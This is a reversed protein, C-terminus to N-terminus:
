AAQEVKALRDNVFEAIRALADPPGLLKRMEAYGALQRARARGDGLLAVTQEVLAQPTFEHQLLEPVVKLGTVLNPLTLPGHVRTPLLMQAARYTVPGVAYFAVQPIGLLALELVATGSAAWALPTGRLEASDKQIITAQEPGRHRRWVTGIQAACRPTAAVLTFRPDAAAGSATLLAAARALVPVHHKIEASRSGPFIALHLTGDIPPPPQPAIVSVLPHGFCEVDLGLSRYFDRQHAFVTLPVACRAVARAKSPRDIWAAPPIYYIIEGRYGCRRLREILRLNFAGFDIPMLLKPPDRRLRVYLWRYIPYLKPVAFIGAVPGVSAWGSSDVLIDAGAARLQGGGVAGLSAGPRLNRVAKALLAGQLDGSAEGAVFFIDVPM